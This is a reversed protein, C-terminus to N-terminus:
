QFEVLRSQVRFNRFKQPLVMATRFSLSRIQTWCLNDTMSLGFGWPM